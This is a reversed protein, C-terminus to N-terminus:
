PSVSLSSFSDSNRGFEGVFQIFNGDRDVVQLRHNGTDAIILKDDEYLAISRPGLTSMAPKPRVMTWRVAPALRRWLIVM